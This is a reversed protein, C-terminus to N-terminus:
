EEMTQQIPQWGGSNVSTMRTAIAISGNGVVGNLFPYALQAWTWNASSLVSAMLLGYSLVACDWSLSAERLEGRLLGFLTPIFSVALVIQLMMNSMVPDKTTTWFVGVVGALSLVVIETAGVRGFRGVVCSYALIFLLGTTVVAPTLLPWLSEGTVFYYTVTNMAMVVFWIIWTGPNPTSAGVVIQRIYVVVFCVMALGSLISFLESM